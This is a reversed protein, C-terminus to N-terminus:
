MISGMKFVPLYMAVVLGGVVIGLIAMIMPELLSTLGDITNDVDEEYINAVKALMEELAGSEEGIAIMQSVMVPFVGTKRMAPGMQQGAALSSKITQIASYYVINNTAISVAELSEILPVGAASTTALTRAFRAIVVKKTIAGFLPLKVLLRQLVDRTKKHKKYLQNILIGFGVLIMLILLGHAQLAESINLVFQTFGPLEAGYSAFLEKFTPVVKILLIGTVILAVSLVAAPYYMAKKIKKKLSDSKEKYLAIRSMMVDLTGSLEGAEVLSCVLTDFQEPHAKIAVSFSKGGEVDTRVQSCLKKLAGSPCGDGIITLAQVIPIGATLMIALQRYFAAIQDGKISSNQGFLGNSKQHVKIQKLGQSQLAGRAAISSLASIDGTIKNNKQDIATYSFEKTSVTKKDSM